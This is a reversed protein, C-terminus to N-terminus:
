YVITAILDACVTATAVNVLTDSMGYIQTGSTRYLM